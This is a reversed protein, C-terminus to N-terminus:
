DKPILRKTIEECTFSTKNIVEKVRDVIESLEVKDEPFYRQKIEYWLDKDVYTMHNHEFIKDIEEHMAETKKGREVKQKLIEYEKLIKKIKGMAIKTHYFKEPIHHDEFHIKNIFFLEVTELWEIAKEYNM